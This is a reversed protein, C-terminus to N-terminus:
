DKEPKKFFTIMAVTVIFLAWFGFLYRPLYLSFIDLFPWNLFLLGLAFLFPWIEKSM